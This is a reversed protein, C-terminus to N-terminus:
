LNRNSGARLAEKVCGLNELIEVVERINLRRTNHSTYEIGVATDGRNEYSSYNLDRSDPLLKYYNGCDSVRAMEEATVLTEYLKEGHRTGIVRVPVETGYINNLADAITRITSAPSKKVFIDGQGGNSFAYEVLAVAEDITMLYRTMDPNTVTIEKGGRVQEVFFPVVSGRSALVNGYRTGCFITSSNTRSKAIMIKEMMAKSIGMANIPYVAKDTSLAIVKRVGNEIAANFVNEAGLANTKVAELPFFECAPVQKLAAAHFVYDVNRMPTVLSGADRVDGLFFQVRNSQLKLRMDGQKKEDRSFIRINYDTDRLYKEVVATGFTGTGGTILLTEAV